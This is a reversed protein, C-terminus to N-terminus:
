SRNGAPWVVDMMRGEGASRYAAEQIALNRLYERGETEFPEGSLLREVFHRQTAWVCDGAFGRQSHEYAHDREPRGLPQIALTGDHRLRLSGGNGEVLFEGFTYRPDLANSENYRNADWLGTAGSEFDLLLLCCDEGAIVPSLRRTQCFVRRVEGALFRFTDIFHIGTEHILLRPMERFYPQRDLYAREGWGDGPRSRL